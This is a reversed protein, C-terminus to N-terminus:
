NHISFAIELTHNEYQHQYHYGSNPTTATTQDNHLQCSAALTQEQLYALNAQIAAIIEPDSCNIHLQLRDAINLDAERRDQQILRIIDRTIGEAILAPTVTTDLEVLMDNNKTAVAKPLNKAVLELTFEDAQLTEGAISITQKDTSLQYEHQKAAQMLQPIKNGLREGVQRFNIKLVMEAYQDLADLFVVEKVNLEDAIIQQYSALTSVQQGIIRVQALPLRVRLKEKDRIALATSCISRVKDMDEVLTATYPINDATPFDQLHVSDM